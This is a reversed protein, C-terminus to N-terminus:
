RKESNLLVPPISLRELERHITMMLSQLELDSRAMVMGHNPSAREIDDDMQRWCIDRAGNM